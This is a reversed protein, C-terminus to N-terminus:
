EPKINDKNIYSNKIPIQIYKKFPKNEETMTSFNLESKSIKNLLPINEKKVSINNESKSIM